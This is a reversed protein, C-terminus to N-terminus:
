LQYELADSSSLVRPILLNLRIYEQSIIKKEVAWVV